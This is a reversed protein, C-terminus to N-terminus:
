AVAQYSPLVCIITEEVYNDELWFHDHDVENWRQCVPCTVRESRRVLGRAESENELAVVDELWLVTNSGTDENTLSVKGDRRFGTVLLIDKGNPDLIARGILLEKM